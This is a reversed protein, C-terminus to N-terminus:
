KVQEPLLDNKTKTPLPFSPTREERVKFSSRSYGIVLDKGFPLLSCAGSADSGTCRGPCLCHPDQESRHYGYAPHFCSVPCASHTVSGPVGAVDHNERFLDKTVAVQHKAEETVVSFLGERGVPGRVPGPSSRDLCM